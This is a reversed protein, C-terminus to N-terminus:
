IIAKEYIFRLGGDYVNVGTTGSFDPNNNNAFVEAISSNTTDTFVFGSISFLTPDGSQAGGRPSLAFTGAGNSTPNSPLPLEFTFAFQSVVVGAASVAEFEIDVACFDGYDTAIALVFRFDDFPNQGFTSNFFEPFYEFVSVAAVASTCQCSNNCTEGSTLCDSTTACEAGMTLNTVCQGDICESIVCNNAAFIGCQENTTCSNDVDVCGCSDLDCRRGVGCQANNWCTSNGLFDEMWYGDSGCIFTSCNGQTQPQPVALFTNRKYEEDETGLIGNSCPILLLSNDNQSNAFNTLAVFSKQKDAKLFASLGLGFGIIGFVLATLIGINQANLWRPVQFPPPKKGGSVRLREYPLEM